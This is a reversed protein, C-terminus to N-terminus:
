TKHQMAARLSTPKSRQSFPFYTISIVVLPKNASIGRQTLFARCRGVLRSTTLGNNSPAHPGKTLQSTVDFSLRM